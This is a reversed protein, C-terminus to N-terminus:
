TILEAIATSSMMVASVVIPIPKIFEGIIGSTILLPIFSQITTLTTSWIPIITDRWVLVGTEFPNFKGTKYYTTMASVVVVTDDILLGLAILFAFLTLFNISQGSLTMIFFAALFTLPVTLSSILAQRLGLFVFLCLVILFITTEFEGLLESFQDDISQATNQITSVTFSNDTKTTEDEVIKTVANGATDINTGTTKYVYFIVARRANIIPSAIYSEKTDKKSRKSVSAIDGLKVQNGQISILMSRISEVDEIKPDISISFTNQSSEVNGAPYSLTAKQITQALAFPNVGLESMKEPNMEIAIEQNEFGSITVRDVSPLDEIIRKLNESFRMLTPLSKETSLAFILVPQDEFDLAKVSPTVADEPLDSVEDVKSQVENKAKEPDISSIFQITIVSINDRSVSTMKDIGKISKIQNELPITILSEADEPSAGPLITIVNVIPIKIEPNLRKPLNVYGFIGVTIISITLLIVFRINGIYSAVVSKSLDAHYKIKELYSSSDSM